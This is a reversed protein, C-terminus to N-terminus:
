HRRLKCPIFLLRKVENEKRNDLLSDDIKQILIDKNRKRLFAVISARLYDIITKSFESIDVYKRELKRRDKQKLIGGHVYTSRVEYADKIKERVEDPNYGILDLLKAVRMRLRYSMEQQESPYLYLAELSSFHGTITSFFFLPWSM